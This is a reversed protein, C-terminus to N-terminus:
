AVSATGPDPLPARAGAPAVRARERRETHRVTLNAFYGEAGIDVWLGIAGRRQPGLKLESVVLAPEVAAGVFLHARRGAVALRV